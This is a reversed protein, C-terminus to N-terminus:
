STATQASVLHTAVAPVGGDNLGFHCCGNQRIVLSGIVLCLLQKVHCTLLVHQTICASQTKEPMDMRHRNLM